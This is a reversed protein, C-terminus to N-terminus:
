RIDYKVVAFASAMNDAIQAALEGPTTCVPTNSISLQHVSSFFRDIEFNIDFSITQGAIIEWRGPETLEATIERIASYPFKFGGIHYEFKGNPQNSVVSNGEIKLYIYGSNWTWFMGMAPDLAGSQVGSVNRTSDVGALFSLGNYSGPTITQTFTMSGSEAQDTLYYPEGIAQSRAGSQVDGLAFQGTYFKLTSITFNEGAANTYPTNLQLPVGNMTPQFRIELNATATSEASKEKQCSVLVVLLTLITVLQKKIEMLYKTHPIRYSYSNEAEM